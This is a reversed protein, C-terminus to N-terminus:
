GVVLCNIVACFLAVCATSSRHSQTPHQVLLDSIIRAYVFSIFTDWSAIPKTEFQCSNAKRRASRPVKSTPKKKSTRLGDKIDQLGPEKRRQDIKNTCPLAILSRRKSTLKKVLYVRCSTWVRYAALSSIEGSGKM